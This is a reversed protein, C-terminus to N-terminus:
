FRSDQNVDIATKKALIDQFLLYSDIPHPQTVYAMTLIHLIFVM